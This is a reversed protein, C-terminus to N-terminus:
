RVEPARRGSRRAPRVSRGASWAQLQAAAIVVAATACLVGAILAATAVAAPPRLTCISTLIWATFGPLMADRRALGAYIAGVGAVAVPAIAYAASTGGAGAIVADLAALATGATYALVLSFPVGIWPTASGDAIDGHVRHYAVGAALASAISIAAVTALGSGAQLAALQAGALVCVLTVPRSARDYVWLRRQAEGLQFVTYMLLAYLIKSWADFVSPAPALRAGALRQALVVEGAERHIKDHAIAVFVAVLAAWRWAPIEAPSVMAHRPARVPGRMSLERLTSIMPHAALLCRAAQAV